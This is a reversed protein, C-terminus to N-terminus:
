LPKVRPMRITMQILQILRPQTKNRPRAKRWRKLERNARNTRYTYKPLKLSRLSRTTVRVRPNTLRLRM